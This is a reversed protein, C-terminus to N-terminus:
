LRVVLRNRLVSDFAGKVDMTVLTAMLGKDLTAEIDHTLCTTLDVVSRGPLAGVQQPSAVGQLITLYSMRRALLRELGKGLCSLLAIPRWSGTKSADRGAKQIMVVEARRFPLPFHGTCLCAQFLLRVPEAISDWCAQFLRTTIGDVGPTTTKTLTAAKVEERSLTDQWPMQRRPAAPVDFPDGPLDDDASFRDLLARRLAQAKDHTGDVMREEVTLPPAKTTPSDKRWGM